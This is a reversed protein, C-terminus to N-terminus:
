INWVSDTFAACACAVAINSYLAGESKRRLLQRACAPATVTSQLFCPVRLRGQWCMCAPEACQRQVPMHRAQMCAGKAAADRPDPAVPTVHFVSMLARQVGPLQTGGGVMVVDSLDAAVISAQRRLLGLLTM